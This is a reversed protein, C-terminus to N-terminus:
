ITKTTSESLFYGGNPSTTMTRMHAQIDVRQMPLNDFTYVFTGYQLGAIWLGGNSCTEFGPNGFRATHARVSFGLRLAFHISICQSRSEHKAPLVRAACIPFPKSVHELNVGEGERRLTEM